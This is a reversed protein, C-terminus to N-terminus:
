SKKEKRHRASRPGFHEEVVSNTIDKSLSRISEARARRGRALAQATM